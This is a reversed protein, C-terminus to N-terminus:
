EGSNTCPPRRGDYSGDFSLNTVAVLCVSSNIKVTPRWCLKSKWKSNLSNFRCLHSFPFFLWYRHQHGCYLHLLHYTDFSLSVGGCFCLDRYYFFDDVSLSRRYLESISLDMRVLGFISCGMWKFLLVFKVWWLHQWMYRWVNTSCNAFPEAM